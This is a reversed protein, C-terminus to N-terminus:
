LPIMQIDSTISIEGLLKSGPKHNMWSPLECSTCQMFTLYAPNCHVAKDYEKGLKLGTLQEMNPELLQKKALM